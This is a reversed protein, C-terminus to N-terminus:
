HYPIPVPPSPPPHDDKPPLFQRNFYTQRGLSGVISNLPIERLGLSRQAQAGLRRRVENLALLDQPPGGLRAVLSHIAAQFRIRNFEQIARSYGITSKMKMRRVAGSM